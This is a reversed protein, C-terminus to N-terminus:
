TKLRHPSSDGSLKSGRRVIADTMHAVQAMEAVDHVRVMDAGRVISIAVAAATGGLRQDPPANLTYGIFSKRSPGSLIPFGLTKFEDLRDLLELNQETTKGFGIGPDIIIQQDKLGAAYAVTICEILERQIDSILDYYQSGTYRPGLWAQFAADEPKSRNHMLVIPMHRKAAITAMDPDRRLGWVDNIMAAGADLARRAVEAKYTDISIPGLGNQTLAEIVPLVRDIEEEISIARSGPRTSEGGVDIVHAGAQIMERARDVSADIWNKQNLTGDGSFSDPTINLIGMIYTQRDWHLWRSGVRMPQRACLRVGSGDVAEYLEALTQHLMPHVLQPAIEALPKLVFARDQLLAHPVHYADLDIIQDEYLLVDIDIVRPGYRFTAERGLEAEISKVFVLLEGPSLETSGVCATNLFSPQDAYGWPEAEYISAIAELKLRTELRDLADILHGHRDGLNSGLGLCVRARM